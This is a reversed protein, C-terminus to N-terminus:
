NSGASKTWGWKNARRLGSHSVDNMLGEFVGM